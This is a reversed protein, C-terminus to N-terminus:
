DQDWAPAAMLGDCLADEFFSETFSDTMEDLFANDLQRLEAREVDDFSNSLGMAQLRM